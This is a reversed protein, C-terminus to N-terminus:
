AINGCMKRKLPPCKKMQPRREPVLTILPAEGGEVLPVLPIMPVQGGVSNSREFSGGKDVDASKSYYNEVEKADRAPLSFDEQVFSFGRFTNSLVRRHKHSNRTLKCISRPIPMRTFGDYFNTLDHDHEVRCDYPPRLEKRELKAWDIDVFFAAQKLGTVGGVFGNKLNTTTTTMIKKSPVTAAGLRSRPDRSLMGRLLIRAATSSGLPMMIEARAIKRILEETGQESSFPPRGTIM